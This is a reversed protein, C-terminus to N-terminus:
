GRWRKPSIATSTGATSRRLPVVVHIGKGGTVMAFSKGPRPAAAAGEDRPRRRQVDAFDLGADPDFDFVLRDPQEVTPYRPAGSTCNWCAWRRPRSWGACMRSTFIIPAARSRASASPASPRRGAPRRTSRSSANRTTAKRAACWRQVAPRRRAAAHSRCDGPLLRDARAQHHRHRTFMMRDPHTIAYGKSMRKAPRQSLKDRESKAAARCPETQAMPRERVVDRAPKDERLGKFSGQRM